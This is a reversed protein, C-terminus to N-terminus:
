SALAYEVRRGAGWEVFALFSRTTAALDQYLRSREGTPHANGVKSSFLTSKFFPQVIQFVTLNLRSKNM